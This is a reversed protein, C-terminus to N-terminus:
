DLPLTFETDHGVDPKWYLPHPDTDMKNRICNMHEESMTHLMLPLKSLVCTNDCLDYIEEMREVTKTVDEQKMNVISSDGKVIKYLMITVVIPETEDRELELNKKQLAGYVETDTEMVADYSEGDSSCLSRYVPMDDVFVENDREVKKQKVPISMVLFCNKVEGIGKIGFDVATKKVTYTTDSTDEKPLTATRWHECVEDGNTSHAMLKNIGPTDSHVFIGSPTGLIILNRPDSDSLTQYSYHGPAIKREEQGEGMPILSTQVRVVLLENNDITPVKTYGVYNAYEQLNKNLDLASISEGDGTCFAVKDASIVGLKEDMNNPRIFPIIGGDKSVIHADTINKGYYSGVGRAGDNWVVNVATYNNNAISVRGSLTVVDTSVMSPQTHTHTHTHTRKQNKTKTKKNDQLISYVCMYSKHMYSKRMYSKRMYSKRMYSKRMYSKRMYSKHM